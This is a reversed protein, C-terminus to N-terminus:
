RFLEDALGRGITNRWLLSSHGNRHMEKLREFEEETLEDSKPARADNRRAGVAADKKAEEVVQKRAAASQVATSAVQQSQTQQFKM